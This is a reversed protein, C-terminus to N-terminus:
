GTPPPGTGGQVPRKRPDLKQAQNWYRWAADGFGRRSLIIGLKWFIEAHRGGLEEARLLYNWASEDDHDDFAILGLAMHVRPAEPAAVLAHVLLSHAEAPGGFNRLHHALGLLVDVNDPALELAKRYAATAGEMDKNASRSKALYLHAYPSDPRKEVAQRGLELLKQPQQQMVFLRFLGQLAAPSDPSDEVVALFVEQAAMVERRSMLVQGVAARAEPSEPHKRALEEMRPLNWRMDGRRQYLEWLEVFTGAAFPEKAAEQELEHIRASRARNSAKRMEAHKGAEELMEAERQELDAHLKDDLARYLKALARRVTADTGGLDRVEILVMLARANHGKQVLALGLDRQVRLNDSSAAAATELLRLGADLEGRAVRINGLVHLLGPHEPFLDLADHIAEEARDLEGAELFTQALHKLPAATTPSLKQLRRLEKEQVDLDQDEGQQIYEVVLLNAILDDPNNELLQDLIVQAGALDEVNLREMVTTLQPTIASTAAPTEAGDGQPSQAAPGAILLVLALLHASTLMSGIRPNKGAHPM